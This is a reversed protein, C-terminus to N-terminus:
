ISLIKLKADLFLILLHSVALTTAGMAAWEQIWKLHIIRTHLDTLGLTTVNISAPKKILHLQALLRLDCSLAEFVFLSETTTGLQVNKYFLVGGSSLKLLTDVKCMSLIAMEVKILGEGL